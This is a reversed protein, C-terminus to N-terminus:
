CVFRPCHLATKGRPIRVRIGATYALYPTRSMLPTITITGGPGDQISGERLYSATAGSHYRVGFDLTIARSAISGNGVPLRVGGGAFWAGASDKFNTTSISNGDSDTVDLSTSTRFLLKSIGGNIYPRIRGKPWALEPGFSITTISNSTTEDLLIRDTIPRSIPVKRTESGYSVGSVDFRLGFFGTRDVHYLFGVGGGVANSVNQRFQGTPENFIPGGGISFRTSEPAFQGFARLPGALALVIVAVCLGRIRKM